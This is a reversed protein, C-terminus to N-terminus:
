RERSSATAFRCSGATSTGPAGKGDWTWVFLHGYAGIVEMKGDGSVDGMVPPRLYPSDVKRPWGPLPTGSRDFGGVESLEGNGRDFFADTSSTGAFLHYVELGGDGRADGICGAFGSKAQIAHGRPWGTIPTGDLNSLGAGTM